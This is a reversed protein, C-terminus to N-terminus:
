VGPGVDPVAIRLGNRQLGIPSEREAPGDSSGAALVLQEKEVRVFEPRARRTTSIRRPEPHGGLEFPGSIKRLREVVVVTEGIQNAVRRGTKLACSGIRAATELVAAHEPLNRGV